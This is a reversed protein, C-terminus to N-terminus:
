CPFAMSHAVIGDVVLAAGVVGDGKLRCETGAGVATFSEVSAELVADLRGAGRERPEGAPQSGLVDMVYGSLIRPWARAFLDASPLSELGSWADGGYLLAGVQGDRARLARQYARVHADNAAFADAMAPSHVGLRAARSGVAGWIGVQSPRHGTGQRLSLSVQAVKIRRATAYLSNGSSSFRRARVDWRGQEVCSVPIDVSAGARVLVATNLVRNQKGGILEEGDVLLVDRTGANAVRLAPVSGGRGIESVHAVGAALAEDLLLWAPDTAAPASLPMVTLGGFSVPSEVRLSGIWARVVGAARPDSAYKVFTATM